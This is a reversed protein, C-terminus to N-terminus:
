RVHCTACMHKHICWVCVCVCVCLCFITHLYGWLRYTRSWTSLQTRCEGGQEQPCDRSGAETSEGGPHILPGEVPNEHCSRTVDGQILAIKSVLSPGKFASLM